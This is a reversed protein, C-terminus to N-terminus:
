TINARYTLKRTYMRFSIYHYCYVLFLWINIHFEDNIRNKYLFLM